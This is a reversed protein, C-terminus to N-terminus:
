RTMWELFALLLGAFAITAILVSVCRSTFDPPPDTM